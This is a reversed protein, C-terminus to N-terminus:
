CTIRTSLPNQVWLWDVVGEVRYMYPFSTGSSGFSMLYTNIILLSLSFSMFFVERRQYCRTLLSPPSEERRRISRMWDRTNKEEKQDKLKKTERCRLLLDVTTPDEEARV